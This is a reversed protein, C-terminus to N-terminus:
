KIEISAKERLTAIYNAFDAGGLRQSASVKAQSIEEETLNFDGDTVKTLVIIEQDGNPQGFHDVSKGAEAAPVPMEFASSIVTRPAEASQRDIESLSTWTLGYEAAVEQMDAGEKLKAVAEEATSRAQERAKELVLASRIDETVEDLSQERAPQHEALRMVVINGNELEVVESNQGDILVVDSFANDVVNRDATIGAGGMRTFFESTEVPKAYDDSIVQLDGSEFALRNLDDIAEELKEQAIEEKLEAELEPKKDALSAIPQREIGTLKILHFGYETKVVDSVVGEEKIGFLAEEFPGDFVGRGNFDLDGGSGSTAIDDSYKAAVEEFPDGAELRAQAETIKARAEEESQDDNIEALIHSARRREQASLLDAYQHYANTIDEDTVEIDKIFNDKGLEVYQIKVKETTKFQAKNQEYYAKLEDDSVQIKEQLPAAEKIAYSLSRTQNNLRVAYNLETRTIFASASVGNQLQEFVMSEEVTDFLRAKTYNAQVMLAELRENSFNGSEDQFQPMSRVYSKVQASSVTLGEQEVAQRILERQILSEVVRPKLLDDTLFSDDINGGMQQKLTERQNEIARNVELTSIEADNVTIAVDANGSSNFIGEIGFFAFPLIFIFLLFKGFWGKLLNRFQQM